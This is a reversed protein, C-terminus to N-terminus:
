AGNFSLGDLSSAGAFSVGGIWDLLRFRKQRLDLIVALLQFLAGDVEKFHARRWLVDLVDLFQRRVDHRRFAVQRVITGQAVFDEILAPKRRDSVRPRGRAQAVFREIELIHLQLTIPVHGSRPHLRKGGPGM